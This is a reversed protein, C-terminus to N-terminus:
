RLGQTFDHVQKHSILQHMFLLVDPCFPDSDLTAKLNLNQLWNKAPKKKQNVM